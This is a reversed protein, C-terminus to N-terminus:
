RYNFLYFLLKAYEEFLAKFSHEHTWWSEPDFSFGPEYYEQPVPAYILDLDEGQPLRGVCWSIRRPHLPDSVVIISRFEYVRAAEVFQEVQEFTSNTEKALLLIDEESVGQTLAIGRAVKVWPRRIVESHDTDSVVLTTLAGWIFLIKSAYGQKYLKIGYEVAPWNHPMIAILDAQHLEDQIILYNGIGILLPHWSLLALILVFLSAVIVWKWYPGRKETTM